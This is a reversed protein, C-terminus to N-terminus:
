VLCLIIGGACTDSICLSEGTATQIDMDTSKEMDDIDCYRRAHYEIVDM